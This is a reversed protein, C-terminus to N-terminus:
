VFWEPEARRVYKNELEHLHYLYNGDDFYKAHYPCLKVCAGCKICIGDVCSVDDKNISNMPCLKVCLGCKVCDGSTLPKVSRIDFADGDKNVPKFHTRYPYPVGKIKPESCDNEGIKKVIDAVFDQIMAIDAADPRNAALKKSFSHEGIFAGAAFVEAGSNKLIDKLEVLADDYDRNGYVAVVVAKATNGQITSLYKTLVNPVRGAYVPTAFVVLDDKDFVIPSLRNQSLTFDCEEYPISLSRSLGKVIELVVKQTTKTASFYVAKIKKFIM